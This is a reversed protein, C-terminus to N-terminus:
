VATGSCFSVFFASEFGLWIQTRCVILALWICLASVRNCPSVPSFLPFEPSLRFDPCSHFDLGLTALVVCGVYVSARRSFLSHFFFFFFSLSREYGQVTLRYQTPRFSRVSGPGNGRCFQLYLTPGPFLIVEYASNGRVDDNVLHFM